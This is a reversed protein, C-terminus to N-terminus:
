ADITHKHAMRPLQMRPDDLRESQWRARCSRFEVEVGDDICGGPEGNRRGQRCIREGGGINRQYNCGIYGSDIDLCRQAGTGAWQKLLQPQEVHIDAGSHWFPM